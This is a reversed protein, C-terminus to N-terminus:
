KSLSNILALFYLYVESELKGFTKLAARWFYAFQNPSRDQIQFDNFIREGGKVTSSIITLSFQVSYSGIIFLETTFYVCMILHSAIFSNYNAIFFPFLESIRWWISPNKGFLLSRKVKTLLFFILYFPLIGNLGILNIEWM